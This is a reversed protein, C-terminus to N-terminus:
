AVGQIRLLGNGGAGGAGSNQGNLSAGGGGGGSATGGTGGAAAAAGTAAGGGGAGQFGVGNAGVTPVTASSTGGLAGGGINGVQSGGDGGNTLANAASIDGGAGGGPGGYASCGGQAVIISNNGSAGGSGGGYGSCYATATNAGAGGFGASGDTAIAQGDRPAGPSAGAGGASLSGGGGAGAGAAGAGGLGPGGGYAILLSGFSTNGGVIGPNGSTDNVTVAVGGIGGAGITVAVTAALDSNLFRKRKYAGGGGGTGGGRLSGSAGRRGSGGGGAGAWGEVDFASYGPPRIFTASSSFEKTFASILLSTIVASDSIFIRAEGPYVIWNTLGDSSPITIDGLGSNKYFVFWGYGLNPPTDFTQTFSGSTVNFFSGRNSSVLIQNSTRSIPPIGFSNGGGVITAIVASVSDFGNQILDFENRILPSTGRSQHAPVGDSHEYYPNSM